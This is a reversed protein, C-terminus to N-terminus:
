RVKRWPHATYITVSATDAVDVIRFRLQRNFYSWKVLEPAGVGGAEPGAHLMVFRVEDGAVTYTGNFPGQDPYNPTQTQYWRGNRLTTRFTIATRFDPGIVNNAKWDAVTDTTVYVGNPIKAQRGHAAAPPRAAHTCARPLPAVLPQPGAGPLARLAGLIGPDLGHAAPRAAVALAALQPGSPAVLRLGSRCLSALTSAELAPVEAAAAAVVARAAEQVATRQGDSLRHWARASFVISQFKPFMGYASLYRADTVYGNQRVPTPSSEAADLWHGHLGKKVDGATLGEVPQAGLARMEADTQPNDVIRIRLGAFASVSDPPVVALVRRIEAPVLALGIVSRPLTALVKHGIPGAAVAQSARDTTITFPALLARFAPAGAAAWARAPLYAADVKGSELAQALEIEHAPVESTYPASEDIKLRVSGHSRRAVEAAFRESLADGVDPVQLTLTVRSRVPAGSKDVAGGCGAAAVAVCVCSILKPTM